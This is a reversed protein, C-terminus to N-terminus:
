SVGKKCRKMSVLWQVEWWKETNGSTKETENVVNDKKADKRERFIMTSILDYPEKFEERVEVKKKNQTQM